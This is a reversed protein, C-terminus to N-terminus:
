GGPVAGIAYSGIGIVKGAPAGDANIRVFSLNISGSKLADQEGVLRRVVDTAPIEIRAGSGHNGHGGRHGSHSQAAAIQFPGISGLLRSEDTASEGPRNAYIKYFFGGEAGIETLTVDELVLALQGPAVDPPAANAKAGGPAAGVRPVPPAGDAGPPASRVIVPPPVLPASVTVSEDGLSLGGPGANPLAPPAADAKPPGAGDAGPPAARVIPPPPAPLSLDAYGYGLADCAVARAREFTVGGSYDFQGKWYDADAAPMTRGQGAAIWASWLRDINAHHLWFLLDLPSQMTAMKGGVLNHVNNHPSGEIRAEFAGPLGREFATVDPAFAGFALAPGVSSGKRIEFLPNRRGDGKTFAEPIAASAFYDWYPLRLADEGSLARLKAEFLFLYGRHWALFHGKGHPCHNQHINAWFRLSDPSEPDTDAKLKTVAELFAPYLPGKAFVDWPERMRVMPPAMFGAAPGIATGAGFAALAGLIARRDM